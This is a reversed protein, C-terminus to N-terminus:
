HHSKIAGRDEGIAQVSNSLVNICLQEIQHPSCSVM